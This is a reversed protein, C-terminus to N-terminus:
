GVQYYTNYRGTLQNSRGGIGLGEYLSIMWMDSFKLKNSGLFTKGHVYHALVEPPPMAVENNTLKIEDGETEGHARFLTLTHGYHDLM